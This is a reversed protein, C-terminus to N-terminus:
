VRVETGDKSAAAVPARDGGSAQIESASRALERQIRRKEARVILPKVYFAMPIGISMLVSGLAIVHIGPNNGVQLITFEAYPRPILGRDAMAQKEEWGRADWGAQSLKYQRPNLGHVIRGILNEIPSRTPLSMFPARLPANLSALHTFEEFKGSEKPVVRITSQYDRASGRHEHQLMKFDVLQLGFDRFELVRPGFTLNIPGLGPVSVTRQFASSTELFRSFPLWVTQTWSPAAGAVPSWQVEVAIAAHEQTGILSKDQKEREVARPIEIRRSDAWSETIVLALKGQEADYVVAGSEREHPVVRPPAGGDLVLAESSGDGRERIIFQTLSRDLYRVTVAPDPKRRQPMGEPTTGALFDQDLEPYRSFCWRTFAEGDPKIVEVKALSSRAGEFGPTIIPFEPEPLLDTVTVRYGAAEVTEGPIAPALLRTGPEGPIEVILGHAAGGPIPVSLLDWEADSVGVRYEIAFQQNESVRDKPSSPLLFFHAAPKWGDGPLWSRMEIFRVPTPTSLPDIRNPDPDRKAWDTILESYPSYGVVRFQLRPDMASRSSAAVARDLSPGAAEQAENSSGEARTREAVEGRATPAGIKLAYENYRPLSPLTRQEWSGPTSVWLAFTDRDYYVDQVPGPGPVGDGGPQGAALLMQGETKARGYVISGLAILVIGTHVTLVGMNRFKFEIRRITAVILNVVFLTLALRMPWWSYFEAETMELVPLRRLTIDRNHAVFEAFLRFGAGTGEDYRLVPWLLTIWALAGAGLGVAAIAACMVFRADRRLEGTGKLILVAPVMGIVLLAVLTVGYVLYTPLLALLGIPVSALVTYVVVFLLLVVALTVTSFAHLVMRLPALAPPFHEREWRKAREWKLSM